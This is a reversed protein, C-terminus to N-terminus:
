CMFIGECNEGPLLDFLPLSSPNTPLFFFWSSLLISIKLLLSLVFDSAHHSRDKPYHLTPHPKSRYKTGLAWLQMAVKTIGSLSANSVLVLALSSLPLSSNCSLSSPECPPPLLLPFPLSLKKGGKHIYLCTWWVRPLSCHHSLYMIHYLKTAPMHSQVSWHLSLM